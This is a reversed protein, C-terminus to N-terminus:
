CRSEIEAQIIFFAGCSSCSFSRCHIMLINPFQFAPHFGFHVVPVTAANLDSQLLTFFENKNKKCSQLLFFTHQPNKSPLHCRSSSQSELTKYGRLKLSVSVVQLHGSGSQNGEKKFFVFTLKGGKSSNLPRDCLLVSLALFFIM